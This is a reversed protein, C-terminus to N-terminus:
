KTLYARHVFAAHSQVDRTQYMVMAKTQKRVVIARDGRIAPKLPPAIASIATKKNIEQVMATASVSLSILRRSTLLYGKARDVAQLMAQVVAAKPLSYRSAKVPRHSLADIAAAYLLHPYMKAFLTDSGYADGSNLRGNIAYVFGIAMGRTNPNKALKKVYVDASRAVAQNQETLEMSTPSEASIGARSGPVVNALRAQAKRVAHWVGEQNGALNAAMARKGALITPASGFTAVPSRGRQSWRGQEVCNVPLPVRGSHPSLIMDRSLTRDQKGGKVIQGAQLFVPKNSINEVTLNNVEQTERVIVKKQALAEDLTLYHQGGSAKSGRILYVALNGATFPGVVHFNEASAAPSCRVGLPGLVFVSVVLLFGIRKFM